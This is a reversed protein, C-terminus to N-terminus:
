AANFVVPTVGAPVPLGSASAWWVLLDLILVRPETETMTPASARSASPVVGERAASPTGSATGSSTDTDLPTSRSFEFSVANGSVKM